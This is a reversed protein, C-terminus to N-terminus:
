RESGVTASWLYYTVKKKSQWGFGIVPEIGWTDGGFPISYQVTANHGQHHNTVDSMAVIGIDGVPTEMTVSAGGEMVFKRKEM